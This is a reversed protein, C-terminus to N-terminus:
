TQFRLIVMNGNEITVASPVLIAYGIYAAIVLVIGITLINKVKTLGKRDLYWMLAVLLVIGISMYIM